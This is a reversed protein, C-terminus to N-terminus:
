RGQPTYLPGKRSRDRANVGGSGTTSLYAHWTHGGAGAANALDQCHKDAGELGGLNAGNGSGVSTVFFTMPSANTASASSATNSSTACASLVVTASAYIFSRPTM